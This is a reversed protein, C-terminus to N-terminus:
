TYFSVDVISNRIHNTNRIYSILSLKASSWHADAPLIYFGSWVATNRIDLDAFEHAFIQVLVVVWTGFIWLYGSWVRDVAM